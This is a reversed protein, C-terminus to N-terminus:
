MWLSMQKCPRLGNQVSENGRGNPSVQNEGKQSGLSDKRGKGSMVSSRPKDNSKMKLSIKGVKKKRDM